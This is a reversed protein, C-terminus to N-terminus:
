PFATLQLRRTISADLSERVAGISLLGVVVVSGILFVGPREDSGWSRASETM